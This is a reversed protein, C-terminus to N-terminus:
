ASSDPGLEARLARLAWAQLRKIEGETRGLARAADALSRGEVFRLELVEREEPPLRELAAVLADREAARDVRASGRGIV